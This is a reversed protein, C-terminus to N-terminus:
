KAYKAILSQAAALAKAGDVKHEKVSAIWRDYVPRAAKELRESEQPSLTILTHGRGKMAEIGPQEAEEWVKTVLDILESGTAADFLKKLEPKMGDYKARNMALMFITTQFRRGNALEIAHNTLEHFKFPGVVEYPILIGDVVGRSLMQAAETIPAGVAAAGFGELMWSASQSPTRIKVGKFDNLSRVAKDKTLLVNGAHTHLALIKYTKAQEKLFDKQFDVLAKNSSTVTKHVFPLEFAELEAFRGPTYATITWIIDVVGDRAQDALQQPRGGLQMAPYVEVKIRGGSKQAVSQVWPVVFRSHMITTPPNHHHMRLTLEQALPAGALLAAGLGLLCSTMRNM